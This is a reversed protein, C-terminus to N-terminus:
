TLCGLVLVSYSGKTIDRIDVPRGMDDFITLDPLPDGVKPGDAIFRPMDGGPGPRPAQANSLASAMVLALMTLAHVITRIVGYPRLMLLKFEQALLAGVKDCLVM